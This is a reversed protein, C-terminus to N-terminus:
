SPVSKPVRYNEACVEFKGMRLRGILVTKYFCLILQHVNVKNGESNM